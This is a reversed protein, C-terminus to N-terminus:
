TAVPPFGPIVLHYVYCCCATVGPVSHQCCCLRVGREYAYPVSTGAAWYFTTNPGYAFATQESNAAGAAMVVGAADSGPAGPDGPYMGLVNLVDRFNIGVAKVSLLVEGPAPQM